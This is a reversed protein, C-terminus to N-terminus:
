ATEEHGTTLNPQLSNNRQKNKGESTVSLLFLSFWQLIEKGRKASVKEM